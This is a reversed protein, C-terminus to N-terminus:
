LPFLLYQFEYFFWDQKDYIRGLLADIKGVVPNIQNRLADNVVFIHIDTFATDVIYMPVSDDNVLSM